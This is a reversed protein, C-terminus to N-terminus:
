ISKLEKAVAKYGKVTPHLGDTGIHRTIDLIKDKFENSIEKIVVRQIPKLSFSPLIWVVRDAKIRSRIYYLYEATMHRHDNSGLSIFVIKHNHHTIIERYTDFWMKSTIGQKAILRCEPMHQSIGIAVSDGM